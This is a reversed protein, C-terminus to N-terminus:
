TNKVNKKLEPLFDRVIREIYALNVGEYDHIIYNRTYYAGKKDELLDYNKLIALQGEIDNLANVIGNHKTVVTEINSIMEIIFEAKKLTKSM